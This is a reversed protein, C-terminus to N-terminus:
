YKPSAEKVPTFVGISTVSKYLCFITSAIKVGEEKTSALISKSGDTVSKVKSSKSFTTDTRSANSAKVVSCCASTAFMESRM